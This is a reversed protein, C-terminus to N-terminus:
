VLEVLSLIAARIHEPLASWAEVVRTLDPDLQTGLALPLALAAPGDGSTTSGYPMQPSDAGTKFVPSATLCERTRIESGGSMEHEGGDLM